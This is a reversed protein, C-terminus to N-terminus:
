HVTITEVRDGRETQDVVGSMGSTVRGFITYGGNLHPQPSHTVFFQSGGTDPGSLAMGVAGRTYKQLNIEDRIAYGPGGSQDNRPDGGQIVFNPVVRMFTTNDFYKAAALQAFNWATRPADQPLLILEIVGRTLHITAKHPQRAWTAIAVYDATVPLPTYQPRNRDLKEVLLDSAVRRVVPDQDSLLSRLFSERAPHDIAALGRIAALRADNERDSAARREAATLTAVRAEETIAKSLAYREIASGRIIPDEAALAPQILDMAADVADDPISGIANARVMPDLDAAFRRRLAPGNRTLHTLQEIVRVKAWPTLDAALLAPEADGFQRTIAAMALEREWRSGNGAIDLLRQRATNNMAAYFGLLEITNARTGADADETMALIRPVTDTSLVSRDKAAVRSLAVAANTRVWPHMDGLARVLASASEPAAIRGLAAVVYARIQPDNDALFLELRDRAPAYARRALAYAAEMRISPANTDLLSAAVASAEDTDFRFLFRIARGRVGDPGSATLAIYRALPVEAALKSLAEAAEAAVSSNADAALTFLADIASKDGIEGLAFAVATRVAPEEDGLMAILETVGAQREGTDREGNGNEDAFTHAGIRGLATAMRIRHLPNAHATWEAAVAADFERRDELGLIRAEEEVTLGHTEEDASADSGSRMTTCSVAALALLVLFKRM